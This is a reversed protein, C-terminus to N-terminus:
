VQRLISLVLRTVAAVMMRSSLDSSHRPQLIHHMWTTDYCASVGDTHIISAQGCLAHSAPMLLFGAARRTRAHGLKLVKRNHIIICHIVSAQPNVFSVKYCGCGDNAVFSRFLAETAIYPADMDHRLM